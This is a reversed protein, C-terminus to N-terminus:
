CDSKFAKNAQSFYDDLARASLRNDIDGIEAKLADQTWRKSTTKAKKLANLMSGIVLLGENLSIKGDSGSLTNQEFHEINVRRFVFEVEGLGDDPYFFSWYNEFDIQKGTVSDFYALKNNEGTRYEIPNFSSMINYLNEGYRIFPGEINVFERPKRNQKIDFLRMVDLEEAGIMPTPLDYIGHELRVIGGNRKITLYESDLEENTFFIEDDLLSIYAGENTTKTIGKAFLKRKTELLEKAKVAYQSHACLISITIHGDLALQLCDAENIEEEFSTSLRKATEQVTLWEKLKFLKKM